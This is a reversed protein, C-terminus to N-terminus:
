GLIENLKERAEKNAFTEIRSLEEAAKRDIYICFDQNIEMDFDYIRRIIWDVFEQNTKLLSYFETAPIFQKKNQKVTKM